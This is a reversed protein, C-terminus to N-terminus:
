AFLGFVIKTGLLLVLATIILGSVGTLMGLIVIIGDKGLMGFSMLLIGFSPLLNTLPLPLAIALSFILAFFGIVRAGGNQTISEFRHRLVKEIRKMIPSSKIILLAIFSRKITKKLIWKPLWPYKIGIFLQTSFILLPIALITTLGPIYPIPISLPLAFIAMLIGFGRENLSVKIEDISISDSKKSRVVQRLFESTPLYSKDQLNNHM